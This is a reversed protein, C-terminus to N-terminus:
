YVITSCKNILNKTKNEQLNHAKITYFDPFCNWLCPISGGGVGRTRATRRTLSPPSARGSTRTRSPGPHYSGHGRGQGGKGGEKNPVFITQDLQRSPRMMDTAVLVRWPARRPGCGDRRRMSKPAWSRDYGRPRGRGWRFRWCSQTNNRRGPPQNNNRKKWGGAVDCARKDVGNRREADAAVIGQVDGDVLALTIASSAM